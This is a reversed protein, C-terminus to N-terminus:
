AATNNTLYWGLKSDFKFAPDTSLFVGLSGQSISMGQMSVYRHIDTRQAYGGNKKICESAYGRVKALKGENSPTKILPANKITPAKTPKQIRSENDLPIKGGQEIIVKEWQTMNRFEVSEKALKRWKKYESIAVKLVENSM